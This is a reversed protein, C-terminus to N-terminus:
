MWESLAVVALGKKKLGELIEPLAAVGAPAHTGRESADHLLVIAGDHASELVRRAVEKPDARIGDRASVDWGIVRLGLERVIRPTHPVTHGIPPRFLKPKKGTIEELVRAGKKLDRKWTRAGKLAFLRDHAYSHLAVQHGRELIERVTEPHAEAKKGIVFFTAKAGAADLADLTKKTSEPDPGDDFTLAVGRAGKPGHIMADVFVRLRLFFVGCLIVAMYAGMFVAVFTVSPPAGMVARGSVVLAVATMIYLLARAPPM